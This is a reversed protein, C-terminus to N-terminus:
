REAGMRIDIRRAAAAMSLRDQFNRPMIPQKSSNAHAARMDSFEEEGKRM